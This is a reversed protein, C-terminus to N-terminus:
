LSASTKAITEGSTFPIAVCPLPAHTADRSTHCTNRTRAHPKRSGNACALTGSSSLLRVDRANRIIANGVSHLVAARLRRLVHRMRGKPCLRFTLPASSALHVTSCTESRLSCGRLDKARLNGLSFWWTGARTMPLTQELEGPAILRDQFWACFLTAPLTSASPRDRALTDPHECTRMPCPRCSSHRSSCTSCNSPSSAVAHDRIRGLSRRSTPQPRLM